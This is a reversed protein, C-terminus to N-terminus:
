GVAPYGVEDSSFVYLFQGYVFVEEPKLMRFDKHLLRKSLPMGTSEFIRSGPIPIILSSHDTILLTFPSYDIIFEEFSM